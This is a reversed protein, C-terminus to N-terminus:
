LKKPVDKQGFTTFQKYWNTDDEGILEILKKHGADFYYDRHNHGVGIGTRGPLGKMGVSIASNSYMIMPIEKEQVRKWLEIDFFEKGSHVAQYLYPLMTKRMATQCLSAHGYNKMMKFGPSLVSYYYTNGLGVIETNQLFKMMVELYTPHYYDDDEIIFIYDGKVYKMAEDMNPRQTNIEPSWQIPGKHYEQGLTCKTRPEADDIVIWQLGGVSDFSLTQRRIYDECRRFAEQRAGTPTLLTIM